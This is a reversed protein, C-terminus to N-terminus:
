GGAGLGMGWGQELDAEHHVLGLHRDAGGGLVHRAVVHQLASGGEHGAHRQRRLGPLRDDVHGSRRPALGRVDRCEHAVSTLIPGQLLCSHWLTVLLRQHTDYPHKQTKNVANGDM